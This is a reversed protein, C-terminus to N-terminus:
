CGAQLPHGSEGSRGAAPQGMAQLTRGLHSYMNALDIWTDSKQPDATELAQIIAIARRYELARRFAWAFAIPM